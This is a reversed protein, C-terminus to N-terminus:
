AEEKGENPDRKWIVYGQKILLQAIREAEAADAAAQKQEALAQAEAAKDRKAATAQKQVREIVARFPNTQEIAEDRKEQLRESLIEALNKKETDM